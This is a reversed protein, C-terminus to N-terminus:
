LLVGLDVEVGSVSQKSMEIIVNFLYESLRM